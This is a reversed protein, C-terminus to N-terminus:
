IKEQSNYNEVKKRLLLSLCWNCGGTILTFKKVKLSFIDEVGTILQMDKELFSKM